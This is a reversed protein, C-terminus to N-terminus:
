LALTISLKKEVWGLELGSEDTLAAKADGGRGVVFGIRGRRNVPSGVVVLTGISEVRAFM